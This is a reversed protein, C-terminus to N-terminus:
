EQLMRRGVVVGTTVPAGSVAPSTSVGPPAPVQQAKKVLPVKKVLPFKPLLEEKKKALLPLLFGQLRRSVPFSERQVPSFDKLEADTGAAALGIALLALVAVVNGRWM